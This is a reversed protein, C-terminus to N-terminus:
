KNTDNISGVMSELVIRREEIFENINELEEINDQKSSLASEVKRKLEIIDDLMQCYNELDYYM